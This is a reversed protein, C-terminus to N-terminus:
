DQLGPKDIFRIKGSCQDPIWLTRCEGCEGAGSCQRAGGHRVAAPPVRCLDGTGM